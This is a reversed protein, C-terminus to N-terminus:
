KRGIIFFRVMNYINVGLAMSAIVICIANQISITIM